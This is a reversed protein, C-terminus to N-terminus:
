EFLGTVQKRQGELAARSTLIREALHQPTYSKPSGFRTTDAVPQLPHGCQPCFKATSSVESGCNLCARALPAACEECFKAEATNEHQCKPCKMAPGPPFFRALHVLLNVDRTLLLLACTVRGSNNSFPGPDSTTAAKPGARDGITQRIPPVLLLSEAYSTM